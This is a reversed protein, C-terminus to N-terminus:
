TSNLFDSKQEPLQYIPPVRHNESYRGIYTCYWLATKLLLIQKSMRRRKTILFFLPNKESDPSKYKWLSLHLHGQPFM